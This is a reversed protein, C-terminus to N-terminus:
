DVECITQAVKLSSRRCQARPCLLIPAFRKLSNKLNVVARLTRHFCAGNTTLALHKPLNEGMHKGYINTCTIHSLFRVKVGGVSVGSKHTGEQDHTAVGPTPNVALSHRLRERGGWHPGKLRQQHSPATLNSKLFKWFSHGVHLQLNMTDMLPSSNLIRRCQWRPGEWFVFCFMYRITYNGAAHQDMMELASISLLLISKLLGRLEAHLLDSLQSYSPVKSLGNIHEYM